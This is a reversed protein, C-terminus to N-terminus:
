ILLYLHVLIYGRGIAYTFIDVDPIFKMRVSSTLICKKWKYKDLVVLAKQRAKEDRFTVYAWTKGQGAPKM